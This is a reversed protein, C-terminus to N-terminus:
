YYQLLEPAQAGSGAPCSSHEATLISAATMDLDRGTFISFEQRWELPRLVPLRELHRYVDLGRDEANSSHCLCGIVILWFFAISLKM